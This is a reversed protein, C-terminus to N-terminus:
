ESGLPRRMEFTERIVAYEFYGLRCVQALRAADVRGDVIVQEAIHIGVIDGIVIHNQRGGRGRPLDIIQAVNCELAAKANEVRSPRVNTSVAAAIGAAEFKNVGYPLVQSTANMEDRMDWSVVSVVFEPVELLNRLTDKPV